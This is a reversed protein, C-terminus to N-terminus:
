TASATPAPPELVIVDGRTLAGSQPTLREVLIRDGDHLTPFMSAGRVVSPEVAAAFLAVFGVVVAAAALSRTWSGTMRKKVMPSELPAESEPAGSKLAGRGRVM